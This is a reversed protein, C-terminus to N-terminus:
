TTFDQKMLYLPDNAKFMKPNDEPKFVNEVELFRDFWITADGNSLYYRYMRGIIAESHKYISASTKWQLRDLNSWLVFTGSPFTDGLTALINSPIENLKPKPITELEGNKM